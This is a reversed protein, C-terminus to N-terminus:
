AALAGFPHGIEELIGLEGLEAETTNLIRHIENRTELTPRRLDTEIKSLANDGVGARTEVDRQTLGLERRKDRLWQGYTM